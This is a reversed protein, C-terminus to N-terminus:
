KVKSKGYKEAKAANEKNALVVNALKKKKTDVQNSIKAKDGLSISEKRKSQKTYTSLIKLLSENTFKICQNRTNKQILNKNSNQKLEKTKVSPAKGSNDNTSSTLATINTCPPNKVKNTIFDMNYSINKSNLNTLLQKTSNVKCNRLDKKIFNINNIEKSKNISYTSSSIQNAITNLTIQKRSRFNNLSLNLCNKLLTKPSPKKKESELKLDDYNIEESLCAKHTNEEINNRKSKIKMFDELKLPRTEQNLKLREDFHFSNILLNDNNQNFSNENKDKKRLSKDSKDNKIKNIPSIISTIHKIHKIDVHRETIPIDAKHKKHNLYNGKFYPFQKNNKNLGVDNNLKNIKLKSLIKNTEPKLKDKFKKSIIEDILSIKRTEQKSMHIRIADFKSYESKYANNQISKFCNNSKLNNRSLKNSKNSRDSIQNSLLFQMKNIINSSVNVKNTQKDKIIKM